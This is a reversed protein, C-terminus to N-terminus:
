VAQEKLIENIIRLFTEMEEAAGITIRIYDSIREGSFHRVLVGRAKLKAYLEGGGIKDTRAFLFNARSPLVDFGLRSLEVATRERTEIITKCNRMYYDNEDLAAAGAAATMSNINYPNTSYKVTRLDEILREDGVAFGLRAGAMSRSKSFTQIVLLNDYKGVLNVASEGGFDIYAEDIIVLNSRNGAVIREIDCLSLYLGTPANPNAILVTGGADVYDEPAISFDERLPIERYPIRNFQAFVTYFGYTIDPFVFPHREDGFAIFSFCLTEDSGNTTIVQDPSVGYLAALKEHLVTCEPDSYLRLRDAVGAIADAVSPSPPFPSENTNLKIYKMDRPQEGPTYPTLSAFKESFFRSM